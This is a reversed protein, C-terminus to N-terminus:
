ADVIAQTAIDMNQRKNKYNVNNTLKNLNPSAAKFLKDTDSASGM